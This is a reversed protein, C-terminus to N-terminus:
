VSLRASWYILSGFVLWSALPCHPSVFCDVLQSWATGRLIRRAGDRHGHTLFSRQQLSRNCLLLWFMTCVNGTVYNHLDMGDRESERWSLSIDPKDGHMAVLDVTCPVEESTHRRDTGQCLRFRLHLVFAWEEGWVLIASNTLLM